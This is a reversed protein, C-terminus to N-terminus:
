RKSPILIEKPSFYGILPALLASILLWIILRALDPALPLQLAHTAGWMLLLATMFIIFTSLAGILSLELTIWRWAQARDIGLSILGQVVASRRRRDRIVGGILLLAGALACLSGTLSLATSLAGLLQTGRKFIPRTDIISINPFLQASESSLSTLHQNESIQATAVHTRPAGELPGPPSVILFNPRLSLWDVQRLNLITFHLHVGQLDFTLQDGVDVGLRQAFREELSLYNADSRSAEESTWWRGKVIKEASSPQTRLTLNHERTLTRAQIKGAITQEDLNSRQIKQTGISVIRARILPLSEYQKAQHKETLHKLPELQDDQVDILFIQPPQLDRLELAHALSGQIGQLAAILSFGVSLSLLATWARGQYGLLHGLAFRLAPHVSQKLAKRVRRLILFSLWILGASAFILVTLALIFLLSLLASGSLDYLYMWISASLSLGLLLKESITLKLEPDPARWLDNTSSRSLARQIFLNVLYSVWLALLVASLAQRPQLNLEGELNLWPLAVFSLAYHLGLGLLVGFVGGISGIVLTVNRYLKQLESPHIGLSRLAGMFPLQERLFGLLGAIFSMTSLSLTVLAIMSFFLAIREFITLLQPQADDASRLEIHEPIESKLEKIFNKLAPLDPIAHAGNPCPDQTCRRWQTVRRVRSGFEVLGLHELETRHIIVRPAFSLSGSIGADPEKEIIGTITFDKGAISLRDQIQLGRLTAFSQSVWAQSSTLRIEQPPISWVLEGSLPYGDSIGKLTILQPNQDKISAMSAMELSELLTGRLALTKKAELYWPDNQLERWSSIKLDGGLEAQTNKRLTESVSALLHAVGFLSGVGLALSLAFSILRPWEPQILRRWLTFQVGIMTQQGKM